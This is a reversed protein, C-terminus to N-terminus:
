SIGRAKRLDELYAGRFSDVWKLYKEKEFMKGLFLIMSSAVVNASHLANVAVRPDQDKIRIGISMRVTEGDDTASEGEESKFSRVLSAWTGHLYVAGKKYM